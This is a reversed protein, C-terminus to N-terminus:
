DVLFYYSPNKFSLLGGIESSEVAALQHSPQMACTALITSSRSINLLFLVMAFLCLVDLVLTSCAGSVEFTNRINFFSSTCISTWHFFQEASM